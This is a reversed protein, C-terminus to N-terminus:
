KTIIKLSINLLSIPRYDSPTEPSNVKPILTIFADNISQLNVTGEWFDHCLKYFDFKIIPWCKKIFLGSFGDPGPAKDTPLDDIIRDIEETSFPASLEDLSVLPQIYESFDFSTDIATSFGLRDKFAQWLIRAKENHDTAISGDPRTLSAISNHRFRITAMSHFYSTNENGFKAWRATCRKKWYDRKCSVLHALRDKVINRFNWESIHLVRQEELGDLLLIIINCNEIVKNIVSISTSWNKLAKRLLKFKSSIVKASDGVCNIEWIRAVVDMFGPM